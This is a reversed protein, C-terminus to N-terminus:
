TSLIATEFREHDPEKIISSMVLGLVKKKKQPLQAEQATQLM